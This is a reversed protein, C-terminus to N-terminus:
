DHRRWHVPVPPVAVVVPDARELLSQSPAGGIYARAILQPPPDRGLEMWCLRLPRAPAAFIGMPINLRALEPRDCTEIGPRVCNSGARRRSQPCIQIAARWNIGDAACSRARTSLDALALHVEIIPKDGRPIPGEFNDPFGKVRVQANVTQGDKGGVLHIGSRYHIELPLSAVRFYQGPEIGYVIMRDFFQKVNWYAM